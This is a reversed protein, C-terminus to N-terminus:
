VCSFYIGYIGLSFEICVQWQKSFGSTNEFAHDDTMLLETLRGLKKESNKQKTLLTKDLFTSYLCRQSHCFYIFLYVLSVFRLSLFIRSEYGIKIFSHTTERQKMNKHPGKRNKTTQM